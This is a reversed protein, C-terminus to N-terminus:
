LISHLEFIPGINVNQMNNEYYEMASARAPEVPIQRLEQVYQEPNSSDPDPM